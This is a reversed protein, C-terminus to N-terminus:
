SSQKRNLAKVILPIVIFAIIGGIIATVLQPVGFTASIVKIQQEKINSILPLALKVIGFYLVLFKAFAGLIISLIWIMLNKRETNANQRQFFMGYIFVLVANGLAIVPVLQIFPTGIGMFFALFPSILAVIIGSALGGLATAAVLLFNVLSGTVLQGLPKSFYQIVLLLALFVATHTIFSVKKNRM